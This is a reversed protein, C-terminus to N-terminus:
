QGMVMAVVSSHEIEHCLVSCIIVMEVRCDHRSSNRLHKKRGHKIATVNIVHVMYHLSHKAM